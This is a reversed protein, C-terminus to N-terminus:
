HSSNLRTSKRDEGEYQVRETADAPIVITDGDAILANVARYGINAAGPLKPVEGRSDAAAVAHEPYNLGAAYFTRPVVPVLLRVAGCRRKTATREYGAFPDGTVEVIDEGEVIGYATRGDAEYRVWRMREERNENRDGAPPTRAAVRGGCGTRGHQPSPGGAPGVDPVTAGSRGPDARRDAGPDRRGRRAPHLPRAERRSDRGGGRRVPDAPRPLRVEGGHLARDGRGRWPARRQRADADGPRRGGRSRFLTTYPCPTDTRTSRPPRRIM